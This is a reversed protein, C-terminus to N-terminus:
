KVAAQRNQKYGFFALGVFGLGSLILTNATDPVSSGFVQVNVDTSKDWGDGNSDWTEISTPDLEGNVVEAILMKGDAGDQPSGSLAANSAEVFPLGYGSDPDTGDLFFNYTQGPALTLNVAFNIQQLSFYAGSMAQYGQLNAGTAGPYTADSIVGSSQVVGITSGQVGGWLSAATTTGGDTWLTIQNINWTQSSTNQFTDGVMEYDTPTNNGSSPVQVWDVNARDSGAADNLNASPLGRDVLLDAFVMNGTLSFVALGLVLQTKM